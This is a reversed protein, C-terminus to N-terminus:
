GLSQDLLASVGTVHVPADGLLMAVAPVEWKANDVELPDTPGLRHELVFRSM